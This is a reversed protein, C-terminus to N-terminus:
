GLWIFWVHLVSSSFCPRAWLHHVGISGPLLLVVLEFMCVAAIHPCPIYDQLGALPSSRYPSIALSPWPYGHRHCSIIIIIIFNPKTPNPKIAYWDITPKKVGFWRYMYWWWWWSTTGSLHIERVRKHCDDRDDMANPLDGLSCGTDRCLQQLYTGAPRGVGARGDSSTWLLVDSILKDKSRWCHGEHRTRRIQITKSIPPLHVCIHM